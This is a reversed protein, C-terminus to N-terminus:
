PRPRAVRRVWALVAKLDGDDLLYAVLGFALIACGAAPVALAVAELKHHVPVALSVALGVAAGAACAALGALAAHSVGRVAAPGCIRRTLFVMPIAVVTQGITTGLALAAPVLRAPVLQTLVVDAVIVLLWSGALAVAAVKLRRIVFMVRSLNAIVAIGALGPAFLAFAWILQPVQDPQKALVHAAPVAIAAIVATGLWSTLVVARTSGASTRDFDPGHRASLVPFASTVISLVLVASITSFVQSAYNYTVLAGTQGRGNALAIGVVGSLDIAVLEIVGVLALGGARRAVGPPFRLVPRLRLRLRWTPPIAVVVLAAIGLTTGVSLVLEASVPLRSLPLGKDLPVFALYCAILVLSSIGPGISPAAFRRYSQLVGYLVVSLGYLLAQPAFVRLMTGTTTVMEARVCATHANAPILLSAIPGAAAAIALTLPVVIVVTWSLMASTIQGVRAKEAPDVAAREASRALVPVLVSGLAGGLILNYLLDPVQNATVYATGLCTAGVTQSFVLTRVLGLIRSVITLSAVVFAGRAIGPGLRSGLGPDALVTGKSERTQVPLQHDRQM